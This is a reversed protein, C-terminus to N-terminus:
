SLSQQCSPEKREIAVPIRITETYDDDVQLWVEVVDEVKRADFINPLYTIEELINGAVDCPVTEDQTYRNGDRKFKVTGYSVGTWKPLRGYSTTIQLACNSSSDLGVLKIDLNIEREPEM